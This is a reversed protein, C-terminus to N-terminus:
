NLRIENELKQEIHRHHEEPNYIRREKEIKPKKPEM